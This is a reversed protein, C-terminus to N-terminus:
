GEVLQKLADLVLQWNKESHQRAEETLNKDQTLVVKVEGGKDILEITVIHYNDPRDPLGSLPSYHSFQFVRGPDVKMIKGKDEYVKGQWEGRWVIPSGEYFKSTVDTGFMYQKISEPTTLADWIDSRLANITTTAKAILNNKKM